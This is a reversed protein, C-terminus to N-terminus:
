LLRSILKVQGQSSKMFDMSILDFVLRSAVISSLGSPDILPNLEVLDFGIVAKSLNFIWSLIHLLERYSYGGPEPNGVGPVISPDLVDIDLSLYVQRNKITDKLISYVDNLSSYPTVIIINNREAFSLEESSSSRAGIILVELGHIQELIRRLVTAHSIRQGPPYEDYLDTHADLYILAIDENREVIKSLAAYTLTHEGGLILPKKEEEAIRETVKALRELSKTVNGPITLVDGLDHIKVEDIDVGTATGIPDIYVSMERIKLPALRSGPRFSSTDDFPFGVVVYNSEEVGNNFGRLPILLTLLGELEGLSM